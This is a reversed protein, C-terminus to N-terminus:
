LCGSGKFLKPIIYLFSPAPISLLLEPNKTNSFCPMNSECVKLKVAGIGLLVCSIVTFLILWVSKQNCSILGVPVTTLLHVCIGLVTPCVTFKLAWCAFM